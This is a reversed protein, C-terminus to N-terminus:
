WCRSFSEWLIKERASPEFVEVVLLGHSIIRDQLQGGSFRGFRLLWQGRRGRQAPEFVANVAPSQHLHGSQKHFLEELNARFWGVLDHEVEIGGIIGHMALLLLPEVLAIVTM